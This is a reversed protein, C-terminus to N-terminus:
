AEDAIMVVVVVVAAAAVATSLAWLLLLLATQSVMGLKCAVMTKATWLVMQLTCPVCGAREVCEAAAAANKEIRINLEENNVRVRLLVPALYEGLALARLGGCARVRADVEAREALVGGHVKVARLPGDLVRQERARLLRVRM